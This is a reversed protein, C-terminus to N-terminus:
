CHASDPALINGNVPASGGDPFSSSCAALAPGSLIVALAPVALLSRRM